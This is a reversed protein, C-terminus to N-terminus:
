LLIGEMESHFYSSFHKTTNVMKKARQGKQKYVVSELVCGELEKFSSVLEM